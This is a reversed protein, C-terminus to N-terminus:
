FNFIIEKKQSKKYFTARKRVKKYFPAALLGRGRKASVGQEALVGLAIEVVGGIM